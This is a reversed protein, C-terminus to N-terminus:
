DSLWRGHSLIQSDYDHIHFQNLQVPKYLLYSHKLCLDLM